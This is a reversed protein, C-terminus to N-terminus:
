NAQKLIQRRSVLILAFVGNAIVWTVPYLWTVINYQALAFITLGHRFTTIVYFSLTETYPHNWSKRITPMFGLMDITSLLVISIVPQKVILWIPLAAFAVVLFIIDIKKIDKYGNKFGLFLIAFQVIITGFTVWAGPGAGAQLQLFFIIGTVFGWVFWSFVHPKTKGKIIDRFYPAYGIFILIIAIISLASKM